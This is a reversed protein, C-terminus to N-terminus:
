RGQTLVVLRKSLIRAVFGVDVYHSLLELVKRKM